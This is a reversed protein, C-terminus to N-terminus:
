TSRQNFLGLKGTDTKGLIVIIWGGQIERYGVANYGRRYEWHIGKCGGTDGQMM